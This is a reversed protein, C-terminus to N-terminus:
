FCDCKDQYSLPLCLEPVSSSTIYVCLALPPLSLLSTTMLWHAELAVLLLFLCPSSGGKSGKSLAVRKVGQSQVEAMWFQSIIFEQQKLTGLKHYNTVVAM